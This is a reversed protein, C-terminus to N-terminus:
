PLRLQVMGSGYPQTYIQIAKNIDKEPAEAEKETLFKQIAKKLDAKRWYDRDTFHKLVLNRMITDDESELNRLFIREGVSFTIDDLVSM